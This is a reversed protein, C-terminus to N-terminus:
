GRPPPKIGFAKFSNLEAESYGEPVPEPALFALRERYDGSM